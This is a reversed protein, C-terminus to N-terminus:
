CLKRGQNVKLETYYFLKLPAQDQFLEANIIKLGASIKKKLYFPEAKILKEEM